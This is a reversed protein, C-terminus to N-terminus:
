SISRRRYSNMFPRRRTNFAQKSKTGIGTARDIALTALINLEDARTKNEGIFHSCLAATKYSLYTKANIIGLSQSSDVIKPFLTRIYDLKVERATTSAFFKIRQSEWIWYVLSSFSTGDLGHPLFDRKSVGIFPDSSGSLREYIGRVEVLDNPYNPAPGKGDGSIPNISTTGIPIMIPDSTTQNTVPVNNLQFHEQLEALAMNLYPMQATYSYSSKSSDNMLSAALDMVEYAQLSTSSM